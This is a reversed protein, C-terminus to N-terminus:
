SRDEPGRQLVSDVEAGILIAYGSLFLWFILIAVGAFAGYTTAFSGFMSTYLSFGLSVVAWMLTAVVTGTSTWRWRSPRNPALYYFLSLLLNMLALAVIWRVADWSAAFLGGHVPVVEQILRGVQSGFVALASAAGGLVVAGALMPIAVVRRAVFSRDNPLGFAMDLAEEVVVMGATSSWVAIVSAVVTTVLGTRTDQQAHTLSQTVVAAAGSPLAAGVGHILNVIIHHPITVLSAVGLLAIILPFISLFWRYAFAGAAVSVRNTRARALVVRAVLLGRFAVSVVEALEVEADEIV